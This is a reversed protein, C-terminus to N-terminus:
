ILWRSGGLNPFPMLLNVEILQHPRHRSPSLLIIPQSAQEPRAQPHTALTGLGAEAERAKRQLGHPTRHPVSHLASRPPHRAHDVNRAPEKM